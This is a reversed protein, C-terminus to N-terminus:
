ACHTRGPKNKSAMGPNGLVQFEILAFAADSSFTEPLRTPTYPLVTQLKVKSRNLSSECKMSGVCARVSAQRMPSPSPDKIALSWDWDSLRQLLRQFDRAQGKVQWTFSGISLESSFGQRNLQRLVSLTGRLAAEKEDIRDTELLDPDICFHFAHAIPQENERVMMVGMRATQAWHCQKMSDGPRFPRLGRIEGSWASVRAKAHGADEAHLGELVVKTQTLKPLVTLETAIAIPLQCHTLGFPFGSRLTLLDRPYIGRFGASVNWQFTTSGMPGIYALGPSDCLTELGFIRFGWVPIPYRNRVQLIITVQEDESVIAKSWHLEARICRVQIWPWVIGLVVIALCIGLVIWGQQGVMLGVLISFVGLLAFWGVPGRLWAFYQTGDPFLDQNWISVSTSNSAQAYTNVQM